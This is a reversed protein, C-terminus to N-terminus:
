EVKTYYTSALDSGNLTIAKCSVTNQSANVDGNFSTTKSYVTLTGNGAVGSTGSQSVIKCDFSTNLIDYYNSNFTVYATNSSDCGLTVKRSNSYFAPTVKTGVTLKSELTHELDQPTGSNDLYSLTGMTCDTFTPHLYVNSLSTQASSLVASISNVTSQLSELLVSDSNNQTQLSVVTQTLAALDNQIQQLLAFPFRCTVSM